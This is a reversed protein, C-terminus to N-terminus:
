LGLEKFHYNGEITKIDFDNPMDIHEIVECLRSKVISGEYSNLYHQYNQTVVRQCEKKDSLLKEVGLLLEEAKEYMYPFNQMQYEHFSWHSNERNIKVVYPVRLRMLDIMTLASSVPFSDIFVDACKFILEYEQSFPIFILRNKCNSDCFIKDIIVQQKNNINSIIIHKVSPNRELLKKITYFYESGTSDFFKYASAGSMTCLDGEEIGLEKRKASIEENTFSPFEEVRKSLMPVFVTKSFHRLHQTIYASTPLAELSIDAFSIGLNPYHSAHPCYIIKIDTYKKVLSLTMTGFIDDPNIFVFLAIPNFKTIQSYLNRLKKQWCLFSFNEGSIIANESLSLMQEQAIDYSRSIKTFFIQQKYTDNLATTQREICKTHGGSSYIETVLYGVRNKHPKTKSYDIIPCLSSIEADLLHTDFDKNERIKEIIASLKTRKSWVPIDFIRIFIKGKKEQLRIISLGLIKFSNNVWGFLKM